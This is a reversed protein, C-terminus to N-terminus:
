SAAQELVDTWCPDCMSMQSNWLDPHVRYGCEDCSPAERWVPSNIMDRTIM